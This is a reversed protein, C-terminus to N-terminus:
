GIVSNLTWIERSDVTINDVRRYRPRGLPWTGEPIGVLIRYAKEDGM